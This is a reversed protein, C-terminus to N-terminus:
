SSGNWLVCSMGHQGAGQVMGNNSQIMGMGGANGGM